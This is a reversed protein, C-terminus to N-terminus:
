VLKGRLATIEDNYQKIYKMAQEKIAEDASFAERLPRAQRTEIELIQANIQANNIEKTQSANYVDIEAQTAEREGNQIDGSNFNGNKDIYLM